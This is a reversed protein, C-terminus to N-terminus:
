KLQIRLNAVIFKCYESFILSFTQFSSLWMKVDHKNPTIPYTFIKLNPMRNKFELFARPMHYNSTILIFKKINNKKAWKLTEYANSYTNTSISDLEICCEILNLNFDFNLKKELSIKTFGKGTGSVLIKSNFTSAKEFKNIIKLGNKIRNTGGTLIVINTGKKSVYKKTSLIKEKYEALGFSFYTLISTILIVYITRFISLSM